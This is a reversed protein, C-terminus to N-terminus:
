ARSRKRSEQRVRGERLEVSSSPNKESFKSLPYLKLIDDLLKYNKHGTKTFIFELTKQDIKLINASLKEIIKLERRTQEESKSSNDDLLNKVAFYIATEGEPKNRLSYPTTDAKKNILSDLYDKDEASSEKLSDVILDVLQDNSKMSAYHLIELGNENKNYLLDIIFKKETDPLKKILAIFTESTKQHIPDIAYGSSEHILDAMFNLLIKISEINGFSIKELDEASTTILSIKKDDDLFIKKIFEFNGNNCALDFPTFGDINKHNLLELIQKKNEISADSFSEFLKELVEIRNKEFAIHFPNYNDPSGQKLLKVIQDCSLNSLIKELVKTNSLSCAIHLSPYTDQYQEILLEIKQDDNLSALIKEVTSAHGYICAVQFSNYNNNNKNLIVEIKQDDDLSALIKEVTSAHDYICAFHFPMLGDKDKEILLKIIQHNYLNEFIKKIIDTYGFICCIHLPTIEGHYKKTLLLIKNKTDLASLITEIIEEGKINLFFVFLNAKNENLEFSILKIKRQDDPNNSLIKKIFRKVFDIEGRLYCNNIGDAIAILTDHDNLLETIQQEDLQDLIIMFLNFNEYKVATEIANFGQNNRTTILYKITEINETAKLFDLLDIFFQDNARALQINIITNGFPITTNLLAILTLKKEDSTMATSFLEKSIRNGLSTALFLLHNLSDPNTLLDQSPYILSNILDYIEKHDMQIAFRSFFPQSVVYQQIILLFINQQYSPNHNLLYFKIYCLFSYYDNNFYLRAYHDKALDLYSLLNRLNAQDQAISDQNVLSQSFYDFGLSARDISLRGIIDQYLILFFVPDQNKCSRALINTLILGAEIKQSKLQDQDDPFLLFLINSFKRLDLSLDIQGQDESLNRQIDLVALFDFRDTQIKDALKAKILEKIEQSSKLKDKFINCSEDAYNGNDSTDKILDYVALEVGYIEELTLLNKTLLDTNIIEASDKSISRTLLDNSIRQIIIDNKEKIKAKFERVIELVDSLSIDLDPVRYFQELDLHNISFLSHLFAEIHIENGKAVSSKPFKKNTLKVALESIHDQYIQQDIPLTLLVLSAEQIRTNSGEICNFAIQQSGSIGPFMMLSTKVKEEIVSKNQSTANELLCAINTFHNLFVLMLEALNKQNFGKTSDYFGTTLRKNIDKIDPDNPFKFSLYESVSNISKLIINNSIALSNFPERTLLQHWFRIGKGLEAIIPNTSDTAYRILDEQNNGFKKNRIFTDVTNSLNPSLM